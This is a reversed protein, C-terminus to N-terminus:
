GVYGFNRSLEVEARGDVAVTKILYCISARASRPSEARASGFCANWFSSISRLLSKSIMKGPAYLLAHYHLRGDIHAEGVRVWIVGGSKSKSMWRQGYLQENVFRLLRRFAKDAREPSGGYAFRYRAPDFTLTLICHWEYRSLLEVWGAQLRTAPYRLGRPNTTLNRVGGHASDREM